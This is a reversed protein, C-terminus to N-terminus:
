TNGIPWCFLRSIGLLIKIFHLVRCVNDSLAHTRNKKEGFCSSHFGYILVVPLISSLLMLFHSNAYDFTGVNELWISPIIASMSLVNGTLM